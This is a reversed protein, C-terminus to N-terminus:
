IWDNRGLIVLTEPKWGFGKNKNKHRNNYRYRFSKTKKFDPLFSVISGSLGPLFSVISGSSGPLGSKRLFLFAAPYGGNFKLTHLYPM